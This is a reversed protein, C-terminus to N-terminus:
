EFAGDAFYGLAKLTLFGGSVLAHAMISPYCFHSVFLAFLFNLISYCFYVWFYFLQHFLGTCFPTGPALEDDEFVFSAVM